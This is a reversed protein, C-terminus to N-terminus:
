EKLNSTIEGDKFSLDMNIDFPQSLQRIDANRMRFVTTYDFDPNGGTKNGSIVAMDEGEFQIFYASANGGDEDDAKYAITQSTYSDDKNKTVEVVTKDIMKGGRETYLLVRLSEDKQDLEGEWYKRDGKMDNGSDEELVYDAGFTVTDGKEDRYANKLKLFLVTGTEDIVDFMPVFAIYMDVMALGLLSMILNLDDSDEIKKSMLDMPITKEETYANIFATLEEGDKVEGGSSTDESSASEQEDEPEEGDETSEASAEPVDKSAAPETSSEQKGGDPADSASPTGRGCGSLTGVLMFVVLLLALARKQKMM